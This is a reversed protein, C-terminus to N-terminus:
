ADRRRYAAVAVSTGLMSFVVLVSAMTLPLDVNMAGTEPLEEPMEEPMETAMQGVIMSRENMPQVPRANGSHIDTFVAVQEASVEVPTTMVLWKVGESCPPTTLSGNYRWYSQDAPLITGADVTVGDVMVPDDADAPMNAFVPALASSEAGEALFVGVVALEGADNSHVFHAEMPTAGGDVTHESLNHFHFQLLNYTQGNVQLTSGEAYNVQVTHGNNVITLPSSQYAFKLDAPNAEAMSALYIPSQEMGAACAAFEPSLDGWHAPGDEGEYSWHVDEAFVQGTASLLLMLALLLAVQPKRFM